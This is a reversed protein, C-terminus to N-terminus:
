LQLVCHIFYLNGTVTGTCDNNKKIMDMNWLAKMGDSTEPLKITCPIKELIYMVM